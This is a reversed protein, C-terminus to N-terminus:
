GGRALCLRAGLFGEENMGPGPVHFWAQRATRSFSPCRCVLRRGEYKRCVQHGMAQLFGLSSAAVILGPYGVWDLQLGGRWKKEFFPTGQLCFLALTM